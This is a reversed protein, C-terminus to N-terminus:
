PNAAVGDITVPVGFITALSAAKAAADFLQADGEHVKTMVTSLRTAVRQNSWWAMDDLFSKAYAVDGHGLRLRKPAAVSKGTLLRLKLADSKTVVGVNHVISHRLQWIIELTGRRWGDTADNDQPFFQFDPETEWALLKKFRKGVHEKTDFWTSGEALARGLTGEDFHAVIVRTKVDFDAFRDDSVVRALEDVCVAALEKM